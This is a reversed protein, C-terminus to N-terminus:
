CRACLWGLGLAGSMDSAQRKLDSWRITQERTRRRRVAWSAMLALSCTALRGLGEELKPLNLPMVALAHRVQLAFTLAQRTRYGADKSESTFFFSLTVPAAHLDYGGAKRDKRGGLGCSAPWLKCARRGDRAPDQCVQCVGTPPCADYKTRLGRGVACKWRGVAAWTGLHGAWALDQARVLKLKSQM